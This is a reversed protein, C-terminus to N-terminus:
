WALLGGAALHYTGALDPNIVTSRITRATVDAIMEVGTTVGFQADIVLLADREAALRLM